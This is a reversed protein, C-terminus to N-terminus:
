MHEKLIKIINKLKKGIYTHSTNYMDGIEKYTRGEYFYLNLIKLDESCLVDELFISFMSKNTSDEINELDYVHKANGKKTSKYHMCLKFIAFRFSYLSYAYDKHKGKSYAEIAKEYLEMILDGIELSNDYPLISFLLNNAFKISSLYNIYVYMSEEFSVQKLEGGKYTDIFTNINNHNVSM